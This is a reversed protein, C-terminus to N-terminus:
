PLGVGRIFCEETPASCRGRPFWGIWIAASPPNALTWRLVCTPFRRLGKAAFSNECALEEVM